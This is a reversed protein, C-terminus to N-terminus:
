IRNLRERLLQDNWADWLETIRANAQDYAAQLGTILAISAGRERAKTLKAFLSDARDLTKMMRANLDQSNM